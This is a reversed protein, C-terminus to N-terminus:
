EDRKLKIPRNRPICYFGCFDEYNLFSRPRYDRSAFEPDVIPMGDADYNKAPNSGDKHLWVGKKGKRTRKVAQKYYHYDDGRDVVLAIKSSGTPCTHHFSSKKLDPIDLLMLDEVTKCTRGSAIQLLDAKGKTGGPQHFRKECNPKGDCQHIQDADIIDAAFTYCNHTETIRPDKNYRDTNAIPESGSLPSGKCKRHNQCFM